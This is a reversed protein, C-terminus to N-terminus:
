GMARVINWWYRCFQLSTTRMLSYGDSVWVLRVKQVRQSSHGECIGQPALCSPWQQTTLFVDRLCGFWAWQPLHLTCVDVHHWFEGQQDTASTSSRSGRIIDTTIVNSIASTPFSIKYSNGTYEGTWTSWCAAGAPSLGPRRQVQM